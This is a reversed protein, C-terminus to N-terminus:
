ESFYDEDVRKIEYITRTRVGVGNRVVLASLETGDILVMRKSIRGRKVQPQWAPITLGSDQRGSAPKL